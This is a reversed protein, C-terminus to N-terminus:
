MRRGERGGGTGKIRKKGVKGVGSVRRIDNTVGVIEGRGGGRVMPRGQHDLVGSAGAHEFQRNQELSADNVPSTM